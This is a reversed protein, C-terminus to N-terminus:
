CVKQEVSWGLRCAQLVLWMYELPINAEGKSSNESSCFIRAIEKVAVSYNKIRSYKTAMENLEHYHTAFLTKVRYPSQEHLYETISWAISIGDFTSTGRGIEDLIVLSRDSLNNLISATENMEVMFTSEGASLNDSAGVRTFVKDVLGITARKAPVFSGMQGLIV